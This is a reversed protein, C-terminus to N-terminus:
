ARCPASPSDNAVSHFHNMPAALVGNPRGFGTRVRHPYTELGALFAISSQSWQTISISFKHIWPKCWLLSHMPHQFIVLTSYIGLHLTFKQEKMCENLFVPVHMYRTVGHLHVWQCKHDNTEHFAM